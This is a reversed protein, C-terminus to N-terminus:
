HIFNFTLFWLLTLDQFRYAMFLVYISWMIQSGIKYIREESM